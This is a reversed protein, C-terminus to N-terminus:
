VPMDRLSQARKRFYKKTTKEAGHGAADQVEKMSYIEAATSLFTRRLDHLTYDLKLKDITTHWRDGFTDPHMPYKAAEIVLDKTDLSKNFWHPVERAKRSKVKGTTTLTVQQRSVLLYGGRVDEPKLALCEAKRLGYLYGLQAAAKISIPLAKLIQAWHHPEIFKGPLKDDDKEPELARRRSDSIPKLKYLPYDDPYHEHIHGLFRNTIQIVDDIWSLSKGTKILALGWAMQHRKWLRPDPTKITRQFYPLAVKELKSLLDNAYRQTFIAARVEAAFEDRLKQPIFANLIALEAKAREEREDRHNLIAVFAELAERDNVYQLYKKRPYRVLKQRGDENHYRRVSLTSGETIIYWDSWGQKKRAM